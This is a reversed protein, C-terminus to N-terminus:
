MPTGSFSRCSLLPMKSAPMTRCFPCIMMGEPSSTSRSCSSTITTVVSVERRSIRSIRRYAPPLLLTTWIITKIRPLIRSVSATSSSKGSSTATKYPSDIKGKKSGARASATHPARILALFGLLMAKNALSPRATTAMAHIAMDAKPASGKQMEPSMGWKTSAKKSVTDPKVVVPALMRVSTSDRVRLPRKQRLKVWQTPPMPTSTNTMAMRGILSPWPMCRRRASTGPGVTPLSTLRM